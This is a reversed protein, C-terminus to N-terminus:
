AAGKVRRLGLLFELVERYMEYYPMMALRAVQIM